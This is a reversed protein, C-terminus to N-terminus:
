GGRPREFTELSQRPPAVGAPGVTIIFDPHHAAKTPVDDYDMLNVIVDFPIAPLDMTAVEKSPRENVHEIGSVDLHGQSILRYRGSRIVVRREEDESLSPMATPDARVTFAFAGDSHIYVPVLHGAEVHRLIDRDDELEASWTDYNIVTAFHARDWVVHMGADTRLTARLEM